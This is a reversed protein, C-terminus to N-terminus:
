KMRFDVAWCGKENCIIPNIDIEQFNEQVILKSAKVLIEIVKEKDIKPRGRYGELIKKMKLEELMEKADKETIPCIRFSVDKFLEVFVGGIGVMIVPGFIPDKKGGIFIEIGRIMEQALIRAKPFKRKLDLFAERINEISGLNLKIAGVDTKHTIEPSIAKLVIPGKM